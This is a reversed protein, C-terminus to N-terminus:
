SWSQESATSCNTLPFPFPISVFLWSAYGRPSRWLTCLGKQFRSVRRQAMVNIGAGGGKTVFSIQSHMSNLGEFMDWVRHVVNCYSSYLILQSGIGLCYRMILFM